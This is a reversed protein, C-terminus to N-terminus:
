ASLEHERGPHLDSVPHQDKALPMQPRDQGLILGM